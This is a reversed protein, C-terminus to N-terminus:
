ESKQGKGVSRIAYSLEQVSASDNWLATPTSQTMRHLPSKYQKM